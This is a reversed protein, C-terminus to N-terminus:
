DYVKTDEELNEDFTANPDQLEPDEIKIDLDEEPGMIVEDEELTPDEVEVDMEPADMDPTVITTDEEVTPEVVEPEKDACAVFGFTVLLAAIVALFVKNNKM